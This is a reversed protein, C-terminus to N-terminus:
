KKTEPFMGDIVKGIVDHQLGEWPFHHISLMPHPNVELIHISDGKMLVDLGCLRLGSISRMSKRILEKIDDNIKETVDIADGGTSVNSNNRLYVKEKEKPISNLSYSKKSLVRESEKDLKIKKHIPNKKLIREKNKLRVLEEISNYGNGVVNAPIRNAVGVIENNVYTFRYEEGEIFDEILVSGKTEAVKNFCDKFETYDNINVFVLNGMSGNHPKLVVPLIPKAWSWARNLDKKSFVVNEPAPYGRSRMLRSTVDKLRMTRVALKSNYSHSIRGGKILYSKNGYSMRFRKKPLIEFNVGRKNAELVLMRNTKSLGRGVLDIVRM